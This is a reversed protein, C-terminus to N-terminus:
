GDVYWERADIMSKSEGMRRRARPDKSWKRCPVANRSSSPDVTVTLATRYMWEEWYMLISASVSWAKCM